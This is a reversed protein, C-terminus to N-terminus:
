LDVLWACISYLQNEKTSNAANALRGSELQGFIELSMSNEIAAGIFLTKPSYGEAFFASRIRELASNATKWHEDAGAPDIGGKLEGLAIYKDIQHHLPSPKQNVLHPNGDLLCLDVNKGVVPVRKNLLLIREKDMAHWYLGRAYVEIDADNPDGPIWSGTNGNVWSFQIGRISLTAIIARILAQEALLGALNRMRGGLSDGRTILFRYVLEDVFSDGAPKLFSEIFNSMAEQLDDQQLHGVAKDSLGAATTLAPIIESIQYLDDPQRARSASARLAKAEEVFPTARRNKEL